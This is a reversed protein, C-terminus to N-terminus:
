SEEERQAILALAREQSPWFEPIIGAGSSTSVSTDLEIYGYRLAWYRFDLRCLRQENKVFESERATLVAQGKSDEFKKQLRATITKVEDVSRREVVIGRKALAFIKQDVILPSYM